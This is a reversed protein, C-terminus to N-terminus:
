SAASLYQMAEQAAAKGTRICDSIGIGSYANGALFIGRLNGLGEHIAALRREHGVNYQPMARPSRYLRYFLPEARLHLIEQLEARVIALIEQDDLDLVGANGAGGLFCRLLAKGAPARHGF